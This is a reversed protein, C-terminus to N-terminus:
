RDFGDRWGLFVPFRPADKVGIPFSKIKAVRGIIQEARGSRGTGHHAQWLALRQEDNFGTGCRFQEGEHPGNLARLILGGLDGRGTKGAAHSSRETRGLANTVAENGNHQREFVGLVEAEFDIYRKVKLLTGDKPYSRGFKYPMAPDRVMVGEYGEALSGAEYSELAEANVIITSTVMLLPMNGRAGVIYQAASYRSWFGGPEDWKDFVYFAWAEGTKSSSRVFSGTRQFVGAATPDGVMLEGDLGNFEPRGLAAQIEANPIPKLSRSVLVGDVVCARIGDYKPQAVLPFRLKTPDADKALMPKFM